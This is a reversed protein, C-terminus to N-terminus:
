PCEGGALVEFFDIVDQDEPFVDNNNFDIDNCGEVPDCTGPSGGALVEFFDVVDQDEPFVGNNNFDIDDCAAGAPVRTAVWSRFQGGFFGNGAITLGDDSVATADTLFWNSLDLGADSLYNQLNVLGDAATWFFAQPQNNCGFRGVVVPGGVASESSIDLTAGGGYGCGDISAVFLDTGNTAYPVDFGNGYGDGVLAAGGIWNGEASVARADANRPLPTGVQTQCLQDNSFECTNQDVAPAGVAFRWGRFNSDALEGVAVDGAANLAFGNRQDSGLATVASTLVDVRIADNLGTAPDTRTILALTGSANVDNLEMATTNGGLSTAFVTFSGSAINYRFPREIFTPGFPLWRTGFLVDGNQDLAAGFSVEGPIVAPAGGAFTGDANWSVARVFTGTATEANGAVRSGNGAIATVQTTGSYPAPAPALPTFTVSQAMASPAVGALLCVILARSM